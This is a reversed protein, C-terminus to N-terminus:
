SYREQRRPVGAAPAVLGTKQLLWAILAGGAAAALATILSGRPGVPVIASILVALGLWAAVAQRTLLSQQAQPGLKQWASEWKGRFRLDVQSDGLPLTVMEGPQSGLDLVEGTFRDTLYWEKKISKIKQLYVGAIGLSLGGIAAMVIRIWILPQLVAM